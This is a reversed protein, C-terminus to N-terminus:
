FHKGTLCPFCDVGGEPYSFCERGGRRPGGGWFGVWWEGGGSNFPRERFVTSCM